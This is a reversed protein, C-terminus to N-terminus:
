GYVKVMSMQKFGFLFDNKFWINKKTSFIGVLTPAVSAGGLIGQNWDM